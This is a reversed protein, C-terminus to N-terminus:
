STSILLERELEEECAALSALAVAADDVIKPKLISEESASNLNSLFYSRKKRDLFLDFPLVAQLLDQLYFFM